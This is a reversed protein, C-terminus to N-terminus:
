TSSSANRRAAQATAAQWLYQSAYSRWPAWAQALARAAGPDHPGGLRELAHRVGLDEVLFVDPDGLARLAVYGATWPGIGPLALLARRTQERDADPAVRLAGDALADCLGVLAGSRARPMPLSAPDLAALTAASPFLRRVGGIPRRLAEGHEAALRGAATRAAAVSVQQGLVARVALEAGDVAGPVRLGPVAAVLPGLLADGGLHAAVAAPDADLGMLRRVREVAPEEDRPDDLELRCRVAAAEFGVEVVGAGRPLRLSRRYTAGDIEEVGSVARAALWELLARGALPPRFRLRRELV